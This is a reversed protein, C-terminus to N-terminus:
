WSWSKAGFPPGPKCFRIGKQVWTHTLGLVKMTKVPHPHARGFDDTVKKQVRFGEGTRAM